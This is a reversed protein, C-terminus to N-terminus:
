AFDMIRDCFKAPCRLRNLKIEPQVEINEGFTVEQFWQHDLGHHHYGQETHISEVLELVSTSCALPVSYIKWQIREVQLSVQWPRPSSPCIDPVLRDSMTDHFIPEIELIKDFDLRCVLFCKSVLVFSTTERKQRLDLRNMLTEGGAEFLAEEGEEQDSSCRKPSSRAGTPAIQWLQRIM